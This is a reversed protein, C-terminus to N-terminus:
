KRGRVDGELIKLFDDLSLTVLAKSHNKKHVLLARKGPYKGAHEAYVQPVNLKEVNKCEIPYDGVLKTALPSFIVDTGNAGMSRSLFDDPELGLFSFVEHLKQCVYKQLTRGKAKCSSTKM